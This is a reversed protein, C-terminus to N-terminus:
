SCCSTRGKDGIDDPSYSKAGDHLAPLLSRCCSSALRIINRCDIMCAGGTASCDLVPM